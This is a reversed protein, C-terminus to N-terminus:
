KHIAGSMDNRPKTTDGGNVVEWFDQCRLYLSMCNLWMNYNQNNLKKM